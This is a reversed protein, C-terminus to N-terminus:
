PPLPWVLSAWFDILVIKGQLDSLKLQEGDPNNMVIDPAEDGINTGIRTEVATVDTQQFESKVFGTITVVALVAAATTKVLFTM